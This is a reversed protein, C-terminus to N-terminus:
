ATALANATPALKIAIAASQKGNTRAVTSYDAGGLEVRGVDRIRVQSGDPNVRLLINAFEEPTSLRSQTTVTANLETGRPSPTGGLEGVAVQINQESIAATVDLPTLNYGTLKAPDLWVRMAYETGFLDAQGVGP